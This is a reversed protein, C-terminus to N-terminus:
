WPFGLMMPIYFMMPTYVHTYIYTYIYMYIYMYMYIYYSYFSFSAQHGNGLIAQFHGNSWTGTRWVRTWKSLPTGRPDRPAEGSEHGNFAELPWARTGAPISWQPLQLQHTFLQLQLQSSNFIHPRKKVMDLFLHIDSFFVPSWLDSQAVSIAPDSIPESYLTLVLLGSFIVAWPHEPSGVQSSCFKVGDRFWDGPVMIGVKIPFRSLIADSLEHGRNGNTAMAWLISRKVLFFPKM